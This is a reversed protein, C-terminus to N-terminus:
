FHKEGVLSRQRFFDPLQEHFNNKALSKAAQFPVSWEQLCPAM